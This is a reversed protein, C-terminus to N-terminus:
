KIQGKAIFRLMCLFLCVFLSNPSNIGTFSENEGLGSIEMENEYVELIGNLTSPQLQIIGLFLISHFTFTAKLSNNKSCFHLALIGLFMSGWTSMFVM